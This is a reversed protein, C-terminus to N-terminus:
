RTVREALADLTSKDGAERALSDGYAGADWWEAIADANM